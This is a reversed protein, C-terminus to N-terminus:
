PAVYKEQREERIIKAGSALWDNIGSNWEREFNATPAIVAQVVFNNSKDVLTQNLPGAVILPSATAIVPGPKANTMAINYAAMVMESPWPYGAALARISEEETELFLGNM